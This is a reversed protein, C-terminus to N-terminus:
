EKGYQDMIANNAAIMKAQATARNKPGTVAQAAAKAADGAALINGVHATIAAAAASASGTYNGSKAATKARWGPTGLARAGEAPKGEAIAANLGDVMRQQAEPSAYNGAWDDSNQVGQTFKAGGGSIGAQYRKLFESQSVKAVKRYRGEKINGPTTDM